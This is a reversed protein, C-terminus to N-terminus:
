FQTLSLTNGDPDKFWAVKAGSPSAWIGLDDQPLGEFREFRVGAKVLLGAEHEIDAVNWGMITYSVPTLEQVRTVRLMVGNCDLVAAMPNESILHLGLRDVYFEKARAIDTAPIFAILTAQSLMIKGKNPPLAITRTSGDLSPVDQTFSFKAEGIIKSRSTQDNKNYGIKESTL